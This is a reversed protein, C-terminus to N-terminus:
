RDGGHEQCRHVHPAGGHTGKDDDPHYACGCPAKWERGSWELKHPRQATTLTAWLPSLETRQGHGGGGHVEVADRAKAWSVTSDKGTLWRTVASGDPFVVLWAVREGGRRMEYVGADIREVQHHSELTVSENFTLEVTGTPGQPGAQALAVGEECRAVGPAPLETCHCCSAAHEAFTTESTM